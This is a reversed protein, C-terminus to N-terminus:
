GAQAQSQQQLLFLLRAEKATILNAYIEERTETTAADLKVRYGAIEEELDCIKEDLTTM